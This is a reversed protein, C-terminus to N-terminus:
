RVLTSLTSIPATMEAEWLGMGSLPMLNKARPPKLSWSELSSSMSATRPWSQSRGTPSPTPRTEWSVTVAVLMYMSWRTSATAGTAGSLVWGLGRSPRRITASQALPAVETTAGSARRRAPASTTTM